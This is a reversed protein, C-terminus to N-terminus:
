IYLWLMVPSIIGLLCIYHWDAWWQNLRMDHRCHCRGVSDEEQSAGTCVYNIDEEQCRQSVRCETLGGSKKALRGAHHIRLCHGEILEYGTIDFKWRPEWVKELYFPLGRFLLWLFRRKPMFFVFIFWSKNLHFKTKSRCIGENCVCFGWQCKTHIPCGESCLNRYYYNSYKYVLDM